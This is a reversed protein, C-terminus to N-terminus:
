LLTISLLNKAERKKAYEVLNKSNGAPHRVYAILYDAHDVMYCNARVIAFKRPVKEMGSPYFTCDFGEPAKIPREAPHYALLMLLRIGPHEKKAEMVAKAAMRDFAGYHGVFFETVGQQTIHQEVVSVLEPFIDM